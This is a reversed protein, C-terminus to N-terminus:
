SDGGEAPDFAADIMNQWIDEAQRQTIGGYGEDDPERTGAATMLGDPEYLADLAAEALIEWADGLSGTLVGDLSPLNGVPQSARLKMAIAVRKLMSQTM